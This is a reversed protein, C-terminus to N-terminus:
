PSPSAGLLAWSMTTIKWGAGTHTLTFVPAGHEVHATAGVRFRYDARIVVWAHAGSVLAYIPKGLTAIGGTEHHATADAAGGDYWDAAGSPATFRYPAFEDVIAADKTCAAIVAARNGDNAAAIFSAIAALVSPVQPAPAAPPGTDSAQSWSMTMLKWGADARALTFILSGTELEPKGSLRYTYRTPVVVWARDGSVHFFRPPAIAIAGGTEHNADADALFGDYWHAAGGPAAFRYPEFNDVSAGDTTFLAILGARDGANATKVWAAIPAFVPAPLAPAASAPRASVLLVAAIIVAVALRQM